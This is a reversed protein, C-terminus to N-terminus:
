PQRKAVRWVERCYKYAELTMYGIIWVGVYGEFGVALWQGVHHPSM